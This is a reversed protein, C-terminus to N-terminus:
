NKWLLKLRVAFSLPLFLSPGVPSRGAGGLLAEGTVLGAASFSGKDYSIFRCRCMVSEGLDLKSQPESM